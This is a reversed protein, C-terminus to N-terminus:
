GRLQQLLRLSKLQRDLHHELQVELVRELEALLEGELRLRRYLEADGGVMVRLVKIAAVSVRRMGPRACSVCLFGGVEPTFPAPEPPLARHCSACDLVLPAYGLRLLAQVEFWALTPRPDDITSLELLSRSVLQYIEPSPTNDELVRDAIEAILSAATTYQLDAPLHPVPLRVVQTVVDLNRGRALQVDIQSFLELGAALRSKSRRVGRAIVGVKGHESTLLTYIRDAEGYDVKRIVVARDRYTPM